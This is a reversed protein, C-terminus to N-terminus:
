SNQMQQQFELIIFEAPRSIAVHVTVAMKGELIDVSTMTSGLGVHVSFADSPKEGVLGGEKWKNDLFNSVMNKVTVWTSNTNPEFVFGRLASEISQEIMMMTRRVNIYRWDLSNSDLTRAGWVLTGKGPFSRIANISKGSIADINMKKQQEHTIELIPSVVSCLGSNAPAKWVGRQNDVTTYIGAMIAATPMVNVQQVIEEIIRGYTPCSVVLGNHFDGITTELELDKEKCKSELESRDANANEEEYKEDIRKVELKYIAKLNSYLELEDNLLITELTKYGGEFYNFNINESTILSSNVWPYYAASYSLADGNMSNRFNRFGSNLADSNYGKYIDYVGFRSKMRECHKLMAGYVRYCSDEDLSLADPAVIITPEREKDLVSNSDLIPAILKEKAKSGAQNYTGVSVIYCTGGGNAYFLQLSHYLYFRISQSSLEVSVVNRKGEDPSIRKLDFKILAPGGYIEEYEQFSTIRIPVNEISKGKRTSQETFGIFVPIATDVQVVSGPFANVEEIYVGPTKYDAM